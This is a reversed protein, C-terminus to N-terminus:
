FGLTTFDVTAYFRFGLLQPTAGAALASGAGDLLAPKTRPQGQADTIAVQTGTALDMYGQDLVYVYDSDATPKAEVKWQEKWYSVGNDDAPATSYDILQCRKAVRGQWTASNVKGLHDIMTLSRDATVNLEVTAVGYWFLKEVPPDFPEYSSTAVDEADLDLAVPEKYDRSAWSIKAPLNTPDPDQPTNDKTSYFCEVKWLYQTEEGEDAQPTLKQCLADSDSPFPNGRVPLGAAGSVVFADDAVNNTIVRYHRTYTRNFDREFEGRREGVIENCSVVAM